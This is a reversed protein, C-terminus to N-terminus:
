IQLIYGIAMCHLILAELELPRYFFVLRLIDNNM